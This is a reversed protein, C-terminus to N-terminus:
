NGGAGGTKGKELGSSAMIANLVPLMNGLDLFEELKERTMSPYNRQFAALVITFTADLQEDSVDKASADVSQIIKLADRHKRLAGLPLPPVVFEEGGFNFKEGDYKPQDM